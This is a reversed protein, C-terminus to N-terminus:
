SDMMHCQWLVQLIFIWNWLPLYETKCEPETLVSSKNAYNRGEELAEGVIVFRKKEEQDKKDWNKSTKM